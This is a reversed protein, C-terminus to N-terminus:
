RDGGIEPIDFQPTSTDGTAVPIYPESAPEDGIYLTVPPTQLSVKPVFSHSEQKPQFEEPTLAELLLKKRAKPTLNFFEDALKTPLYFNGESSLPHFSDLALSISQEFTSNPPIDSNPDLVFTNIYNTFFDIFEQTLQTKPSNNKKM